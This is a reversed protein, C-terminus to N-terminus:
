HIQTSIDLTNYFLQLTKTSNYLTTANKKFVKAYNQLCNRKTRYLQLTTYLKKYHITSNYITSCLNQTNCHQTSHQLTTFPQQITKYLPSFNYLTNDLKTFHQLMTYLQARQKNLIPKYCHLTRYLEQITKYFTSM